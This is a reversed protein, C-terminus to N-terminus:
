IVTLKRKCIYHGAISQQLNLKVSLKLLNLSMILVSTLLFYLNLLTDKSQVVWTCTKGTLWRLEGGLDSVRKRKLKQVLFFKLDAVSGFRAFITVLYEWVIDFLLKIHHNKSPMILPHNNQDRKIRSASFQHTHHQIYRIECLWYIRLAFSWLNM